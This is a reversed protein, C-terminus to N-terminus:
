MSGISPNRPDWISWGFNMASVRTSDRHPGQSSTEFGILLFSDSLENAMCHAEGCGIKTGSLGPGVGATLIM